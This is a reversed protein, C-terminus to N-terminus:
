VRHGHSPGIKQYHWVQYQYAKLPPPRCDFPSEKYEDTGYENETDTDTENETDTQYFDTKERYSTSCSAM